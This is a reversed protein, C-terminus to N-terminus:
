TLTDISSPEYFSKTGNSLIWFGSKNDDYKIMKLHIKSQFTYNWQQISKGSYQQGIDSDVLFNFVTDGDFYHASSVWHKLYVHGVWANSM